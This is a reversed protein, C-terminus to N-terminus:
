QANDSYDTEDALWMATAEESMQILINDLEEM